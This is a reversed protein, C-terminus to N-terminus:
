WAWGALIPVWAFPGVVGYVVVAWLNALMTMEGQHLPPRGGSAPYPTKLPPLRAGEIVHVCTACREAPGPMPDAYVMFGDVSWVWRVLATPQPFAAPHGMHPNTEHVTQGDIALHEIPRGALVGRRWGATVLEADACTM